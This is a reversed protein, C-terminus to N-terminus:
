TNPISSHSTAARWYRQMAPKRPLFRCSGSSGGPSRIFCFVARNVLALSQVLPDRRRVHENEHTLVADLQTESWSRWASPLIVRPRLWGVTVPVTCSDGTWLGERLEARRVLLRARLAGIALRLLFACLGVLYIAALNSQWTWAAPLAEPTTPASVFQTTVRANLTRVAAANTLRVAARPGWAIWLPLALMWVVVAAWVTHRVRADKVRLFFLLAGVGIAILTSRVFCETMLSLVSTQM